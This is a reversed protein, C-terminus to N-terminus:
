ESIADATKKDKWQLYVQHRILYGQKLKGETNEEEELEDELNRINEGKIAIILCVM